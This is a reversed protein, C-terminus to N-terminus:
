TDTHLYEVLTHVHRGQKQSYKKHPSHYTIAHIFPKQKLCYMHVKQSLLCQVHCYIYKQTTDSITELMTELM